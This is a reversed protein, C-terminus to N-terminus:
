ANASVNTTFGFLTTFRVTFSSAAYSTYVNGYNNNWFEHQWSFHFFCSQLPSFKWSKPNSSLNPTQTSDSSQSSDGAMEEDGSLNDLSYSYAAPQSNSVSTTDTQIPSRRFKNRLKKAFHRLKQTISTVSRKLTNEMGDKHITPPPSNIEFPEESEKEGKEEGENEVFPEPIPTISPLAQNVHKVLADMSNRWSNSALVKNIVKNGVELINYDAFKKQIDEKAKSFNFEKHIHKSLFSSAKKLKDFSKLSVSHVIKSLTTTKNAFINFTHLFNQTFNTM